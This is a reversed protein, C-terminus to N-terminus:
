NRNFKQRLDSPMGWSYDQLITQELAEWAAPNILRAQRKKLLAEIETVNHYDPWRGRALNFQRIAEKVDRQLIAEFGAREYEAASLITSVTNRELSSPQSTQQSIQRLDKKINKNVTELQSLLLAKDDTNELNKTIEQIALESNEAINDIREGISVGFADIKRTQLLELIVDDYTFFAAVLIVPWMLAKIYELILKAFDM